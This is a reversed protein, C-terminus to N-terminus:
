APPPHHPEPASIGLDTLVRGVWWIARPVRGVSGAGGLDSPLEEGRGGFAAPGQVRGGPEGPRAAQRWRRPLLIM